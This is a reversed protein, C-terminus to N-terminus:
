ILWTGLVAYLAPARATPHTTAWSSVFSSRVVSAAAPFPPRTDYSLQLRLTDLRQFAGEVRLGTQCTQPAQDLVPGATTSTCEAPPTRPCLWATLCGLIGDTLGWFLLCGVLVAPAFGRIGGITGIRPRTRGVRM